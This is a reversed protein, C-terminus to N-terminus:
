VRKWKVALGFVISSSSSFRFCLSLTMLHITKFWCGFDAVFGGTAIMTRPGLRDVFHGVAPGVVGGELRGLGFVLSTAARSLGFERSVPLFYMPFGFFYTGDQLASIVGGAAVIWWGYFMKPRERPASAASPRDQM